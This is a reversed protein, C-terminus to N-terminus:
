VVCLNWLFWCFRCCLPGRDDGFVESLRAGSTDHESTLDYDWSPEGRGRGLPGPTTNEGKKRPERGGKKREETDGGKVSSFSFSLSLIPLIEGGGEDDEGTESSSFIFLIISSGPERSSSLLFSSALPM